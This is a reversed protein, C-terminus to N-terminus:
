KPLDAFCDSCTMCANCSSSPLPGPIGQTCPPRWLGMAAMYHAARRWLSYRKWRFRNTRSRWACSKPRCGTSPLLLSDLSRCILCYRDRMMSCSLAASMTRDWGMHHLWYEPRRSLIRASKPAGVYELLRLDHLHIGYDRHRLLCSYMGEYELSTIPNPFYFNTTLFKSFPFKSFFYVLRFKPNSIGGGGGM